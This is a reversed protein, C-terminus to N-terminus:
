LDRLPQVLDADVGSLCVVQKVDEVVVLGPSEVCLLEDLAHHLGAAARLCLVVQSPSESSELPRGTGPRDWNLEKEARLPTTHSAAKPFQNWRERHQMSTTATGIAESIMKARRGKARRVRREGECGGPM